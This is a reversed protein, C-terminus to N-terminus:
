KDGRITKSRKALLEALSLSSEEEDDSVVVCRDVRHEEWGNPAEKATVNQATAKWPRLPRKGVRQTSGIAGSAANGTTAADAVGAPVSSANASDVEGLAALARRIWAAQSSFGEAHADCFALLARYRHVLECTPGLAAVLKSLDVPCCYPPAAFDELLHGAGNMLCSRHVCHGIGYMHLVEHAATKCARALVDGCPVPLGCAWEAGSAPQGDQTRRLYRHFSLLGARSSPSALGGTFVDDAGCYIDTLTVGLVCYTDAPLALDSGPVVVRADDVLVLEIAYM